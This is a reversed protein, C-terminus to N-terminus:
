MRKERLLHLAGGMSFSQRPYSGFECVERYRRIPDRRLGGNLRQVRKPIRSQNQLGFGMFPQVVSVLEDHLRAAGAGFLSVRGFAIVWVLADHRNRVIPVRSLDHASFGQALFRGFIRQVFPHQLHLRVLASNM